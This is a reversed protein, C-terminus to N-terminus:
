IVGLELAKRFVSLLQKNDTNTGITIRISNPFGLLSGSRVIIGNKLLFDYMKDGECNLHVMIFNAQSSFSSLGLKNFQKELNTREIANEKVCRNLFKEDEISAIAAVQALHNVNFVDQVKRLEKIIEKQM